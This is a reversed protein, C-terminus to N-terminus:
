LDVRRKDEETLKRLGAKKELWIIRRELIQLMVMIAILTVAVFVFALYIEGLPSM